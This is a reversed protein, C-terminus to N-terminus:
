SRPEACHPCDAGAWRALAVGLTSAALAWPLLEPGSALPDRGLAANVASLAVLVAGGPCVFYLVRCWPFSSAPRM